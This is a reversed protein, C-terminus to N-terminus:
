SRVVQRPVYITAGLDLVKLIVKTCCEIQQAQLQSDAQGQGQQLQLQAQSRTEVM